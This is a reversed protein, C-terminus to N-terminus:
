EHTYKDIMMVIGNLNGTISTPNTSRCDDDSVTFAFDRLLMDSYGGGRTPKKFLFASPYARLDPVNVNSSKRFFPNTSYRSTFSSFSQVIAIYSFSIPGCVVCRSISGNVM